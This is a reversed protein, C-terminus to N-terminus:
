GNWVENQAIKMRRGTKNYLILDERNSSIACHYGIDGFFAPNWFFEDLIIKKSKDYRDRSGIIMKAIQNLSWQSRESLEQRIHLAYSKSYCILVYEDSDSLLDLIAQTKGSRRPTIIMGGKKIARKLRNTLYDM